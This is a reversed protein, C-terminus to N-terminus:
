SDENGEALFFDGESGVLGRGREVRGSGAEPTYGDQILPQVRHAGDKSVGNREPLRQAQVGYPISARTLNNRLTAPNNLM